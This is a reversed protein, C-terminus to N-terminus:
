PLVCSFIFFFSLKEFTEYERQYTKNLTNLQTSKKEKLELIKESSKQQAQTLNNEAMKINNEITKIQEELRRYEKSDKQFDNSNLRLQQEKKQQELDERQKRYYDNLEQRFVEMEDILFSLSEQGYDKIKKFNFQSWKSYTQNDNKLTFALSDSDSLIIEVRINKEINEEDFASRMLQPETVRIGRSVLFENDLKDSYAASALAIAELINTKGCGNEGILVNVRGWELDLSDISKYNQIKVERIMQSIFEYQIQKSRLM